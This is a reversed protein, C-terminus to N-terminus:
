EQVINGLHDYTVQSRAGTSTQAVSRSAHPGHQPMSVQTPITNSSAAEVNQQSARMVGNIVASAIDRTIRTQEDSGHTEASSVKAKKKRSTLAEKREKRKPCKNLIQQGKEGLQAWEKGSYYRTTDTIDVGNFLKKGNKTFLKSVNRRRIDSPNRGRRTNSGPQLSPFIQAVQTGLYTVADNFNNSHANRCIQICASFQTNNTTIQKLLIEVEEKESKPQGYQRLTDFSKKLRTSYKEFSFTSENKYFAQELNSRAVTVRKDGEAPGDYHECLQNWARRGDQRRRHVKIWDAADTGLTLEDLIRHVEKNDTDFARGQHPANYVIEDFASMDAPEIPCPEKRIVYYLPISSLPHVSSKSKLYTIVSQQWDIWDDYKFKSPMTADSERQSEAYHIEVDEMAQRMVDQTFDATDLTHGRLISQNVWYNLGQVKSAAVSGFNCGGRTAPRKNSDSVWDRIRSYNFGQFDQLDAWGNDEVAQAQNNTLRMVGTTLTRVTTNPAAAMTVIPVLIKINTSRQVRMM